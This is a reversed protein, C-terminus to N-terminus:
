KMTNDNTEAKLYISILKENLLEISITNTYIQGGGVYQNGM